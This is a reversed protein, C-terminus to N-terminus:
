GIKVQKDTFDLNCVSCEWQRRPNNGLVAAAKTLQDDAVNELWSAVAGVAQRRGHIDGESMDERYTCRNVSSDRVNVFGIERGANARNKYNRRESNLENQRNQWPSLSGELDSSFPESVVSSDWSLSSTSMDPSVYSRQRSYRRSSRDPSM